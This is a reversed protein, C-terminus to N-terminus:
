RQLHIWRDSANVRQENNGEVVGLGLEHKRGSQLCHNSGRIGIRFEENREIGM